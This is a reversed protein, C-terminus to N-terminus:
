AVMVTPAPPMAHTFNIAISIRPTCATDDGVSAAPPPPMCSSPCRGMVAHPVNGPFFWLTGPVPPLAMYTRSDRPAQPEVSQLEKGDPTVPNSCGARLILHGSMDMSGFPKDSSVVTGAQGHGDGNNNGNTVVPTDFQGADVYYVASWREPLHTHIKNYNDNRSVNLWAKASHMDGIESSQLLTTGTRTLEDIAVSTIAHLLQSHRKGEEEVLPPGSLRATLVEASRQDFLDHYSHFGGVNSLKLGLDIARHTDPTMDVRTARGNSALNERHIAFAALGANLPGAIHEAVVFRHCMDQEGLSNDCPLPYASASTFVKAAISSGTWREASIPDLPLPEFHTSEPLTLWCAPDCAVLLSHLSRVQHAEDDQHRNLVFDRAWLNENRLYMRLRANSLARVDWRQRGAHWGLVCVELGNLSAHQASCLGYVRAAMGPRLGVGAAHVPESDVSGGDNSSTEIPAAEEAASAEETPTNDTPSTDTAAVQTVGHCCSALPKPSRHSPQKRTTQPQAGVEDLAERPQSMRPARAESPPSTCAPTVLRKGDDEDEHEEDAREEEASGRRGSYLFAAGLSDGFYLPTADERQAADQDAIMGNYEWSSIEYRQSLVRNGPRASLHTALAPLLEALQFPVLFLFVVTASAFTASRVFHEVLEHTLKVRPACYADADIRTQARTLLDVNVDCGIASCGTLRVLECLLSAEGCGLDCVVDEATIAGLQRLREAQALRTPVHPAFAHGDVKMGCAAAWDSASKACTTGPAAWPGFQIAPPAVDSHVVARAPSAAFDTADSIDVNADSAFLPRDTPFASETESILFWAKSYIVYFMPRSVSTTNPLSRHITRFDFCLVSGRALLPTCHPKNCCDEPLDTYLHSRFTVHSGPYFQTPGTADSVVDVLPACIVLCHAPLDLQDFLPQGDRHWGQVESGPRNDVVGRWCEVAGDGLVEHVFPLWPAENWLAPHGFAGAEPVRGCRVNFCAIRRCVIENFRFQTDLDVGLETLRSDIDSSRLVFATHCDAVVASPLADEFICLGTKSLLEAAAAPEECLANLDGDGVRDCTSM